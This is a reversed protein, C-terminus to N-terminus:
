KKTKDNEAKWIIGQRYVMERCVTYGNIKDYVPVAEGEKTLIRYTLVGTQKGLKQLIERDEKYVIDLWEMKGSYFEEPRYGFQEIGASLYDVSGKRNECISYAVQKSKRLCEEMAANQRLLRWLENRTEEREQLIEYIILIGISNGNKNMMAIRNLRAFGSKDEKIRVQQLVGYSELQEEIVKEEFTVAKKLVEEVCSDGKAAGNQGRIRMGKDRWVIRPIHISKEEGFANKYSQELLVVVIHEQDVPFVSLEMDVKVFYGKNELLEGQFYIRGNLLTKDSLRRKATNKWIQNINATEEGILWRAQENAGILKGGEYIYFFIPFSIQDALKQFRRKLTHKM